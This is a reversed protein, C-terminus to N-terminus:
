TGVKNMELENANQYEGRAAYICEKKIHRTNVRVSEIEEGYKTNKNESM